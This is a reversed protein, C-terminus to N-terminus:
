NQIFLNVATIKCSYFWYLMVFAGFKNIFRMLNKICCCIKYFLEWYSQGFFFKWIWWCQAICIDRVKQCRDRNGQVALVCHKYVMQCRDTCKVTHTKNINFFTPLGVMANVSTMLYAFIAFIVFIQPFKMTQSEM